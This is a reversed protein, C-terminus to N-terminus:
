PKRATTRVAERISQELVQIESSDSQIQTSQLQSAQRYPLESYSNTTQPAMNSSRSSSAFHNLIFVELQIERTYLTTPFNLADTTPLQPLM